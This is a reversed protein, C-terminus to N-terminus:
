NREEKLNGAMANTPAAADEMAKLREYEDVSLVVAVACGHKEIKAPEARACDLLLGFGCKADAAAMVKMPMEWSGLKSWKAM